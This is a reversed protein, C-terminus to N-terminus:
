APTCNTAAAAASLTHCACECCPKEGLLKQRAKCRVAGRMPQRVWVNLCRVQDLVMWASKSVLHRTLMGPRRCAALVCFLHPLRCSPQVMSCCSGPEETTHQPPTTPGHRFQPTQSDPAHHATSVIHGATHKALRERAHRAHWSRCSNLLMMCMGQQGHASQPVNLCCCSHWCCCCCTTSVDLKYM